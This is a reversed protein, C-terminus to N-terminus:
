SCRKRDYKFSGPEWKWQDRRGCRKMGSQRRPGTRYATGVVERRTSASERGMQKWNWVSTTTTRNVAEDRVDYNRNDWAIAPWTLQAAISSNSAVEKCVWLIGRDFAEAMWFRATTLMPESLTLSNASEGLMTRGGGM